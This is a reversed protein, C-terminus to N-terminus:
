EPIILSIKQRGNKRYIHFDSDTTFVVSNEILESIRVLCADALSMPVNEYKKMLAKVAGFETSLSFNVQLVGLEIMQLAKQEGDLVDKLLYCVETIVAECTLYPVPLNAAQTRAWENWQDREYILGVLVGTDAILPLKIM